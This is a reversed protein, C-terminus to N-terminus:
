FLTQIETQDIKYIATVFLWFSHFKCILFLWFLSGNVASCLLDILYKSNPRHPSLSSNVIQNSNSINNHLNGGSQQNLNWNIPMNAGGAGGGNTTGDRSLGPGM